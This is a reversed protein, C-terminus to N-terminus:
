TTRRIRAAPKQTETPTWEVVGLLKGSCRRSTEAAKSLLAASMCNHIFASAQTPESPLGASVCLLISKEGLTNRSLFIYPAIKKKGRFTNRIVRLVSVKTIQDATM